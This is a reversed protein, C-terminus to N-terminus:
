WCSACHAFNKLLRLGITQSKEPHFQCAFINDAAISSVFECGAYNTTTAVVAKDEPVVYYSHVFYCYPDKGLDQLLPSPKAQEISNWGMHPVKLPGEPFRKVRGTLIALGKEEGGEESSEFLLQYGLCIGLFPRGSVVAERVAEDMGDRRLSRMADDFAGVGPLVLASAGAVEEPSSTVATRYGLYQLAKEVSRLNGRGYDIITIEVSRGM